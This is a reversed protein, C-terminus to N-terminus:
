INITIEIADTIATEDIKVRFVLTYVGRTYTSNFEVIELVGEELLIQQQMINDIQQKRVKRGLIQQFWPVGYLTNFIYEGQFTHLRISLRQAVVEIGRTVPTEGNVFSIDGNEDLLIDM